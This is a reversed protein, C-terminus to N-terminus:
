EALSKASNAYPMGIDSNCWSDGGNLPFDKRLPYGDFDGWMMLRKFNPHGDFSIGFMDFVEREFWDAGKHISTLSPVTQGEAIPVKVRLREQSVLNQFHIVLDFRPVRQPWDVATLDVMLQFGENFILKVVDSYLDAGVVITLDGRFNHHDTIANPLASNISEIVSM